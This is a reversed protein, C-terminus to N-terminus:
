STLATAGDGTPAPVAEDLSTRHTEPALATAVLTLACCAMVYAAVASSGYRALLVTAIFPAVGGSFVSTLQYVLSAGTYRVKTGFLESLYAAMPGYMMDHGVNMALVIAISVFRPGREILWFFPFATLLSILAGSFYVPKRGIRDSLHSWLPTTLLGIISMLMVGRLMLSRPYGLSKEGYSLVFVTYVYFLANQAFRMGMGILIERPHERFVELLPRSSERGGEKLKAFAPTELIRLRIFLGVGVLLVSILFPVRWGWALFEREPLASSLAGFVATSLLLGAPVGMQPWSGHFGRRAGGSHEVALLVAGGWEGGVGFGQVFRLTVLLTPAWIGIQDYTPTLGIFATAVGMILLSWVLMKKRGVRDGYHGFVAGGLPRAVFGVAFTGYASLTGAVPSLTPFFLRNFVLAAATGYLFFDYWEITTGIFSAVIVRRMERSRQNADTM